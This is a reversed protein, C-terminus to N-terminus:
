VKLKMFIGCSGILFKIYEQRAELIVDHRISDYYDTQVNFFELKFRTNVAMDSMVKRSFRCNVLIDLLNGATTYYIYEAESIWKQTSDDPNRVDKIYEGWPTTYGSMTLDRATILGTDFSNPYLFDNEKLPDVKTDTLQKTSLYTFALSCSLINDPLGIDSMEDYTQKTYMRFRIGNCKRGVRGCRQISASKDIMCKVVTPNGPVFVLPSVSSQIRLGNDFVQYWTDFTKGTEIANTSIFIKIEYQQSDPDHDITDELLKSSFGRCGSQYPLLLVRIKGANRKRWEIVKDEDNIVLESKFIPYKCVKIINDDFLKYMGVTSHSFVLMDRVPINNKLKFKSKISEEVRDTLLWKVFDTPNRTLQKEFDRSIFNEITPYNQSGTIYCIMSADSFVDFKINEDHNFYYDVMRDVDITASAFIFLPLKTYDAINPNFVYEKIEKMLSIMAIDLKHCEDIIIINGLNPDNRILMKRFIETTMYVLKSPNTPPIKGSGTKYGTNLGLQLYQYHNTNEISISKALIVTPEVVNIICKNKIRMEETADHHSDFYIFLESPMCSSKGSGTRGKVFYLHQKAEFQRQLKFKIADIVCDIGMKGKANFLNYKAREDFEFSNLQKLTVAM